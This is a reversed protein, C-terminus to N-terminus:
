RYLERRHGVRVVLVVLAADQIECIIRCDGVRYRWLDGLPGSLAKGVQRPYESARAKLFEVIRRSEATGLKALQKAASRALEIRWGLSM